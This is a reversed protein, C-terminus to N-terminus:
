KENYNTGSMMVARISQNKHLRNTGSMMV